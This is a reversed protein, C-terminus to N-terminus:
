AGFRLGLKAEVGKTTKGIKWNKFLSSYCFCHTKSAPSKRGINQLEPKSLENFAVNDQRKLISAKNAALQTWNLM